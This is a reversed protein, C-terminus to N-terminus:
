LFRNGLVKEWQMRFSSDNGMLHGECEWRGMIEDRFDAVQASAPVISFAMAILLVASLIM